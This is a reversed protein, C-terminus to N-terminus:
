HNDSNPRRLWQRLRSGVAPRCAKEAAARAAEADALKHKAAAESDRAAQADAKAREAEARARGAEEQAARLSAQADALKRQADAESATATQADTKATDGESKPAENKPIPQSAPEPPSARGDADFTFIPVQHSRRRSSSCVKSGRVDRSMELCTLLETNSSEGVQLEAVSQDCTLIPFTTQKPRRIAPVLLAITVVSSMYNRMCPGASFLSLNIIRNQAPARALIIQKISVSTTHGYAPSLLSVFLRLSTIDFNRALSPESLNRTGLSSFKSFRSSSVCQPLSQASEASRL